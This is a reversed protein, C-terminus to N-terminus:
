EIEIVHRRPVGCQDTTEYLYPLERVHSLPHLKEQLGGCIEYPGHDLLRQLAVGCSISDEKSGVFRQEYKWVRPDDLAVEPHYRERHIMRQDCEAATLALLDNWVRPVVITYVRPTDSM